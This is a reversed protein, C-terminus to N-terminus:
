HSATLVENSAKSSQKMADTYRSLFASVVGERLEERSEASDLDEISARVFDEDEVATAPIPWPYLLSRVHASPTPRNQDTNLGAAAEQAKIRMAQGLKNLGAVVTRWTATIDTPSHEATEMLLLKYANEDLHITSDLEIIRRADNLMVLARPKDAKPVPRAARLEVEAKMGAPLIELISRVDDDDHKRMAVRVGTSGSQVAWREFRDPNGRLQDREAQTLDLCLQVARVYDHDTESARRVAIERFRLKNQAISAEDMARVLDDTSANAPPGQSAVGDHGSGGRECQQALSQLQGQLSPPFHSMAQRVAVYYNCAGAEKASFAVQALSNLLRQQRKEGFFSNPKENEGNEGEPFVSQSLMLLLNPDSDPKVATSLIQDFLKAAAGPDTDIMSQLTHVDSYSGGRQLSKAELEMAGAVDGDIALDNAQRAITDTMSWKPLDELLANWAKRDLERVESSVAEIALSYNARNGPSADPDADPKLHDLGEKLYEQARPHDAEKWIDALRILLLDRELPSLHSDDAFAAQTWRKAADLAREAAPSIAKAIESKASSTPQSSRASVQAALSVCCLLSGAFLIARRLM